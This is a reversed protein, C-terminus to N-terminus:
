RSSAKRSPAPPIAEAFTKLREQVTALWDLSATYKGQASPDSAKLRLDRPQASISQVGRHARQPTENSALPIVSYADITGLSGGQEHFPVTAPQLRVALDYDDKGIRSPDSLDTLPALDHREHLVSPCLIVGIWKQARECRYAEVIPRGALFVSGRSAARWYHGFAVAGRVPMDCMIILEHFTASCAIILRRFSEETNGSSTLVISDSFVVCEVKVHTPRIL